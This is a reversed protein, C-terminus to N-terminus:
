AASPQLQDLQHQCNCGQDVTMLPIGSSAAGTQGGIGQKVKLFSPGCWSLAASPCQLSSPKLVGCTMQVTPVTSAELHLHDEKM